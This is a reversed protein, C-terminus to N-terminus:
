APLIRVQHGDCAPCRPRRLPSPVPVGHDLYTVVTHGHLDRTHRLEYDRGWAHGCRLCAFSYSEHIIGDSDLRTM